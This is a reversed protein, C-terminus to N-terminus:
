DKKFDVSVNGEGPRMAIGTIKSSYPAAFEFSAARVKVDVRAEPLVLTYCGKVMLVRQCCKITGAYRKNIAEKLAARAGPISLTRANGPPLDGKKVSTAAIM